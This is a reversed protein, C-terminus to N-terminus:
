GTASQLVPLGDRSRRRRTAGAQRLLRADRKPRSMTPRGWRRGVILGRWEEETMQPYPGYLRVSRDIFYTTPYAQVGYVQSVRGNDVLIPHEVGYDDRFAKIQEISEAQTAIGYVLVGQDRFEDYIKNLAPAEEQCNPCWPAFFHLVVLQGETDSLRFPNGELDNLIFDDPRLDPAVPDEEGCGALGGALVVGVLLLVYFRLM